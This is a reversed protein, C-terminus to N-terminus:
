EMAWLYEVEEEDSALGEWTDMTRKMNNMKYQYSVGSHIRRMTEM